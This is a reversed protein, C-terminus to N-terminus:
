CTLVDKGKLDRSVGFSLLRSYLLVIGSLLEKKWV